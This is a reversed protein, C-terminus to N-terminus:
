VQERLNGFSMYPRQPLYYMETKRPRELRGGYLPWLGSLIRFLSSKGCGNPGTIFLHMGICIELNFSQIIVDGTPTVIPVNCLRITDNTEVTEGDIRSFDSNQAITRCETSIATERLFVQRKVDEFVMFM